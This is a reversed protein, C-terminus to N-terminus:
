RRRRTKPEDDITFNIRAAPTAADIAAAKRKDRTEAVARWRAAIDGARMGASTIGLELRMLQIRRHIKVRHWEGDSCPVERRVLAEVIRKASDGRGTVRAIAALDDEITLKHARERKAVAGARAEATAVASARAKRQLPSVSRLLGFGRIQRGAAERTERRVAGREVLVTILEQIRRASLGIAAALDSVRPGTWAPEGDASRWLATLVAKASAPIGRAALLSEPIQM